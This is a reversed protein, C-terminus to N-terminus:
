NGATEGYLATSLERVASATRPGFGLLWAGDMKVLARAEAAPTGAMAPHAFLEDAGAGPDGERSMMLVMEPKAEYVAEDSLQKYGEFGEVANLGGAMRIIGDAATNSGAALLRGSQMSLIFLVRKREVVRGTAAEAAKVEAEVQAALAEAKDDVGLAHGVMRIKALIGERDFTEPVAVVPISAKRIVEVAEPPGSGELMLIASPNVSMVGEPSLQRMYGVDPLAMAEPPYIATSDRAVLKDQEGLAYVIETLSGGIAVLRSPDAFREAEEAGASGALIVGATTLAAFLRRPAFFMANM